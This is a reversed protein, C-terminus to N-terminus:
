KAQFLFEGGAMHGASVVAGYQPEQPFEKRVGSRVTRWIEAGRTISGSTELTKVLNWAFISHGEKGEDSVPEDGGSSFVLVSRRQLVDEPRAQTDGTIKEENTLSGSFCSDSVLIVQRSRIAALLKSIDNNSIWGQATNVSADAPIWFGMNIDEMLYGHGAYFLLVSDEPRAEQAIQNLAEIIQGKSANSIVQTEYDFRSRLVSAISSVDAIPTELRPIPHKHDNNGVLLAFRRRKMLPAMTTTSGEAASVTPPTSRVEDKASLEKALNGSPSLKSTAATSVAELEASVLCLAGPINQGARCDPLDAAQPNKRLEELAERYLLTRAQHRHMLVSQFQAMGPVGGMFAPPRMMQAIAFDAATMTVILMAASIVSNLYRGGVQINIKMTV